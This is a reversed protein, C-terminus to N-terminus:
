FLCKRHVMFQWIGNPDLGTTLSKRKWFNWSRTNWSSENMRMRQENWTFPQSYKGSCSESTLTLKYISYTWSLSTSLNYSSESWLQVWLMTTSLWLQVWLMATSLAYSYESCLEYSSESWLQVGLMTTSLDYNMAPSLDYGYESCLQVWIMTWLQVWIMTASLNHEPWRQVWIMSTSLYGAHQGITKSRNWWLCLM